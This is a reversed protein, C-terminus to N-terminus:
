LGTIFLACELLRDLANLVVTGHDATIQQAEVVRLCPNRRFAKSRSSSHASKMVPNANPLKRFTQILRMGRSWDITVGGDWQSSQSAGMRQYSLTGRTLQSTSCPRHRWHPARM